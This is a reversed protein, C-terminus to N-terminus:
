FATRVCTTVLGTLRRENQQTYSAGKEKVPRLVENRVRNMKIAAIYYYLPQMEVSTQIM